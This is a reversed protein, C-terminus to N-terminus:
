HIGLCFCRLIWMMMTEELGFGLIWCSSLAFLWFGDSGYGDLALRLSAFNIHRSVVVVMIRTIISLLPQCYVSVGVFVV